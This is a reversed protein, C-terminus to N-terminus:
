INTLGKEAICICAVRSLGSMHLGSKRRFQVSQFKFTGTGGICIIRIYMIWIKGLGSQFKPDVDAYRDVNLWGFDPSKMRNVIAANQKTGIRAM